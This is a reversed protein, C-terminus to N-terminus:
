GSVHYICILCIITNFNIKYKNEYVEIDFSVLNNDIFQKKYLYLEQLLQLRHLGFRKIPIHFKYEKNIDFSTNLLNLKSLKKAQLSKHILHWDYLFENFKCKPINFINHIMYFNKYPIKYKDLLKELIFIDFKNIDGETLINLVLKSNNQLNNIIKSDIGKFFSSENKLYFDIDLVNDKSEGLKFTKNYLKNQLLRNELTIQYVM